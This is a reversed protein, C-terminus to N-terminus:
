IADAGCVGCASTTTVLRPTPAPGAGDTDVDVVNFDTEVASGLGCYRVTRVAAGDLLGESVCFGVALEMDHGPTRMTTTVATGDVRITLPEEVIVEDPRRANSPLRRTM